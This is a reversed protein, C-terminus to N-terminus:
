DIMVAVAAPATVKCTLRNCRQAFLVHIRTALSKSYNETSKCNGRRCQAHSHKGNCKVILGAALTPCNTKVIWLKLM